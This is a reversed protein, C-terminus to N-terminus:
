RWKISNFGYLWTIPLGAHHSWHTRCFAWLSCNDVSQAVSQYKCQMNKIEWDWKSSWHFSLPPQYIVFDASNIQLPRRVGLSIIRDRLICCWWLRKLANKQHDSINIVTHYHHAGADKPFQIAIGLWFTNIKNHNRIPPHYSLLLAGQATSIPERDGEFDFLLQCYIHAKMSYGLFAQGWRQGGITHLELMELTQLGSNEFLIWLSLSYRGDTM